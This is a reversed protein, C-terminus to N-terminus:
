FLVSNSEQAATSQSALVNGVQVDMQEWTHHDLCIM